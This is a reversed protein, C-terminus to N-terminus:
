ASSRKPGPSVTMPIFEDTWAQPAVFLARVGETRFYSAKWTNVMARAEKPFLGAEVLRRALDDALVAAFEDM